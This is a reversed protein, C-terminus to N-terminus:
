QPIEMLDRIEKVWKAIDARLVEEPEKKKRAEEWSRLVWDGLEGSETKQILAKVPIGGKEALEQLKRLFRLRKEESM